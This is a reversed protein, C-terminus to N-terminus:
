LSGGEKETAMAVGESKVAEMAEDAAPNWTVRKSVRKLLNM